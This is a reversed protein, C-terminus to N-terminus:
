DCGGGPAVVVTGDAAVDHLASEQRLMESTVLDTETPLPDGSQAFYAEIAVELIRQDRACDEATPNTPDGAAVPDSADSLDVGECPGGAVPVVQGDVLEVRRSVERILVEDVLDQQTPEPADPLLAFYAERAVELTRAEVRCAQDPSALLEFPGICPTGPVAEMATDTLTWRELPGLYGEDVLQDLSTPEAEFDFTFRAFALGVVAVEFACDPGGVAAIEEDTADAVIDEPTMAEIEAALDALEDTTAPQDDTVIEVAPAAAPVEGCGPDAPILVGDRVDWLVSEERLGNGILAAENPAPEGELVEYIELASQIMSAEESCALAGAQQIATVGTRELQEIPRFQEATDGGCAGIILAAATVAPAILRGQLM